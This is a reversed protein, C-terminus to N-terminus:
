DNSDPRVAGRPDNLAISITGDTEVKIDVDVDKPLHKENILTEVASRVRCKVLLLTSASLPQNVLCSTAKRLEEQVRNTDNHEPCLVYLKRDHTASNEGVVWGKTVDGSVVLRGDTAIATEVRGWRGCGPHDCRLTGELIFAM